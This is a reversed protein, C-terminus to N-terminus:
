KVRVRQGSILTGPQSIVVQENGTLGSTIRVRDGTADGLTVTKLVVRGNEISMVASKGENQFVAARPVLLETGKVDGGGATHFSVKANMEPRLLGDPNLVKVKVQVTAKQRNAEPAMQFVEGQYHKDPYADGTITCKQKMQVRAFDSQNIDLEVLLDNLDAVNVVSSKAGRDGVFSTTVMEGKEVLRDLITGHVPSRIETADLQTKAYDLQGRAQLVLGRANAIEEQRPGIKVLESSKEAAELQAKAQDFAARARDLEQSSIVGGKALGEAREFQLRANTLNARADDAQARARAIEQPLSGHELRLLQAEAAALNGKAQDYAAQYEPQELRVVVQDKEVVDGKEVGIWAVKGMIKSSLQIKYHAVVYGGAVLVSAPERVELSVVKAAEVTPTRLATVAMWAILALALTGAIYWVWRPTNRPVGSRPERQIRLSGLDESLTERPM